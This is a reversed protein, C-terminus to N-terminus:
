SANRDSSGLFWNRFRSPWHRPSRLRRWATQTLALQHKGLDMEGYVVENFSEVILEIDRTLIPFRHKLRLGYEKPTESLSHVLGSHRGWILLAIYLQIVGRHGKFRRLLWGWCSYLFRRLREVWLGILYWPSQGEQSVPTKSFLWRFLLFVTVGVIMLLVIGLLAWMGYALIKGLLEM